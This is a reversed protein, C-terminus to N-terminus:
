PNWVRKYGFNKVREVPVTTDGERELRGRAHPTAREKRQRPTSNIKRNLERNLHDRRKLGTSLRDRRGNPLNLPAEIELGKPRRTPM